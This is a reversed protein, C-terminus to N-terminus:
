QQPFFYEEVSKWDEVGEVEAKVAFEIKKIKSTKISFIALTIYEVFLLSLVVKLFIIDECWMALVLVPLTALIQVVVLAEIERM